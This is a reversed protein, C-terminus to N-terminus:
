LFQLFHRARDEFGYPIDQDNLQNLLALRIMLPEKKQLHRNRCIGALIHKQGPILQGTQMLALDTFTIPGTRSTEYYFVMEDGRQHITVSLGTLPCIGTHM